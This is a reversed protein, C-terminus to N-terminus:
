FKKKFRFHVSVPQLISLHVIIKLYHEFRVIIHITYNQFTQIWSHCSLTFTDETCNFVHIYITVNKNSLNKNHLANTCM